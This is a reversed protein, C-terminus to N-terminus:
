RKSELTGFRLHGEAGAEPSGLGKRIMLAVTHITKFMPLQAMVFGVLPSGDRADVAGKKSGSEM